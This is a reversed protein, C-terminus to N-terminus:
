AYAKAWLFGITGAALSALLISMKAANLENILIAAITCIILLIDSSKESDFFRNFTNSLATSALNM